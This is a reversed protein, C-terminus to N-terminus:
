PPCFSLSLWVAFWGALPEIVHFHNGSHGRPLKFVYSFQRAYDVHTAMMRSTGCRIIILGYM